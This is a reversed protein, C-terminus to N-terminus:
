EELQFLPKMETGDPLIKPKIPEVPPNYQRPEFPQRLRDNALAVYDPNLDCGIFHRGLHRAVLATTGIGMFPDLVIGPQTDQSACQCSPSFGKTEVQVMGRPIGEWGQGFDGGSIHNRKTGTQVFAKEVLRLWGAGCEACTKVPAGILVCREVLAPPFTAFHAHKTGISNISWVNRLNRRRSARATALGKNQGPTLQQTKRADHLQGGGHSTPSAQQRVADMDSWYTAARTLMFVHEHASTPRDRASEPIPNPKHWIIDSRLYWGDDQLAIAVRAPIMMLDKPKFGFYNSKIHKLAQVQKRLRDKGGDVYSRDSGGQTSGAYSDGMNVFAVGDSRLVRRVERFVAVMRALYAQPTEELGIQGEVGYDRMSFYPPSTVVCNVSEDSLRALYELVDMAEITNRKM